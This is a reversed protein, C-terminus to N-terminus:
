NQKETQFSWFHNQNHEAMFTNKFEGTNQQEDQMHRDVVSKM